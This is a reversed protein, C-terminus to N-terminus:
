REPLMKRLADFSNISVHKDELLTAAEGGAFIGDSYYGIIWRSSTFV